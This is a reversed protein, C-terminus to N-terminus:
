LKSLLLIILSVSIWPALPCSDGYKIRGTLMGAAFFLASSLMSVCFLFVGSETSGAVAGCATLLKLDGMGVSESGSFLKGALTGLLMLAGASAAGFFAGSVGNATIGAAAVAACIQDPIIMYDTDSLSAATLLVLVASVFLMNGTFSRFSSNDTRLATFMLTLASLLLIVGFGKRGFRCRNEASYEPGPTEGYECVWKDPLMKYLNVAALGCGISAAIVSAFFFIHFVM